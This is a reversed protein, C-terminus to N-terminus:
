NEDNGNGERSAARRAGLDTVNAGGQAAPKALYDAWAQMLRRRKEFFDSRQYAAEVRDSNTHALAAEGIERPFATKEAAWVRFSSRFGHVTFPLEARRLYATLTMDSVPAGRRMDSEFVLGDPKSGHAKARRRLIDMAASSLAVRHTRGAKMREPPLTWTEALLDIEGWRAGAAEGYRAGTLILFQLCDAGAASKSRLDAMFAGVKAYPMSPHHKQRQVKARAPLVMELAGRWRAPNEGSRLGRVAAWDLVAEIRGRLRSATETKTAWLPEIVKLVMARDVAGVPVAGFKPYAYAELTAPWQKRHKDNKWGKEHAAIYADAAQKFTMARARREAEEAAKREAEAKEHELPDIGAAALRRYEACRERAAALPLDQVRGFGLERVKGALRVRCLWSRKPEGDKGQTVQLYLGGGDAYVGPTRTKLSATTLKNTARAM